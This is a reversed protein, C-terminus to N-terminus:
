GPLNLATITSIAPTIVYRVGLRVGVSPCVPNFIGSELSTPPPPLSDDSSSSFGIAAFDIGGFGTRDM